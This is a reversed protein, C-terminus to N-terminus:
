GAGKLLSLLLQEDDVAVQLPYRECLRHDIVQVRSPTDKISDFIYTYDM